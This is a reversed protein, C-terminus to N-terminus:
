WNRHAALDPNQNTDRTPFEWILMENNPKIELDIGKDHTWQAMTADKQKQPNRKMGEGYRVLDDMRFGEGILERIRENKLELELFNPGPYNEADYSAGRAERLMKFSNLAGAFDGAKLSAESNILYAEGANFLHIGFKYEPRDKDKNLSPNGKYKAISTFGIHVNPQDEYGYFPSAYYFDKTDIFAGNRADDKEYLGEIWGALIMVPTHLLRRITKGNELLDDKYDGGYISASVGGVSRTANLRVLIEPSDETVWLRSIQDKPQLPYRDIVWQSCEKAVKWDERTLAARAKVAYAYDKTIYIAPKVDKNADDPINAIAYDLDEYILKYVDQRSRKPEKATVLPDYKDVVIIGKTRDAVDGQHWPLAFRQVVRWHALARIVKAEGIYQKLLAEDESSKKIEKNAMYEEVRMIFYNAEMLSYYNYFYYNTLNENDLVASKQWSYFPLYSGNDADSVQFLDSMYDPRNLMNPSETNRLLAYIADRNMQVDLMSKFPAQEPKGKPKRTVDCSTFGVLLFALLTLIYTTKKM